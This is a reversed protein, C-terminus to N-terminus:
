PAELEELSKFGVAKKYRYLEAQADHGNDYTQTTKEWLGRLCASLTGYSSSEAITWTPGRGWKFQWGSHCKSVIVWHDGHNRMFSLGPTRDDTAWGTKLMVDEVELHIDPTIGDCDCAPSFNNEWPCDGRHGRDAKSM